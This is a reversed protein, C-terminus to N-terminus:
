IASQILVVVTFREEATEDITVHEDICIDNRM